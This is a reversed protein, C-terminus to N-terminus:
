CTTAGHEKEIHHRFIEKISSEFGCAGCVLVDAAEVESTNLYVKNTERHHMAAQVHSMLQSHTAGKYPCQACQLIAPTARAGAGGGGRGRAGPAHEASKHASMEKIANCKFNCYKCSYLFLRFNPSALLEHPPPLESKCRRSNKNRARWSKSLQLSKVKQLQKARELIEAPTMKRKPTPKPTTDPEPTAPETNQEPLQTQMYMFDEPNVHMVYSDTPIATVAEENDSSAQSALVCTVTGSGDDPCTDGNAMLRFGETGDEYRVLTLNLLDLQMIPRDGHTVLQVYKTQENGEVDLDSLSSSMDTDLIANGKDFPRVEVIQLEGDKYEASLLQAGSASPIEDTESM